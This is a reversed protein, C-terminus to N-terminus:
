EVDFYVINKKLIIKKSKPENEELDIDNIKDITVNGKAELNCYVQM